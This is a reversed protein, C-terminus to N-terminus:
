GCVDMSFGHAICSFSIVHMGIAISICPVTFFHRPSIVIPEKSVSFGNMVAAQACGFLLTKVLGFGGTAQARGCFLNKVFFAQPRRMALVYTKSLLHVQPRRLPWFLLNKALAWKTPTGSPYNKLYGGAHRLSCKRTCDWDVTKWIWNWNYDSDELEFQLRLRSVGAQLITLPTLLDDCPDRGGQLERNRDGATKRKHQQMELEQKTMEAGLHRLM